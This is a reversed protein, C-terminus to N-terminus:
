LGFAVRIVDTDGASITDLAHGFPAGDTADKNIVGNDLYLLDGVAVASNGSHDEATVSVRQIHFGPVTCTAYDASDRDTQLYVVMHNGLKQVDGSVGGATVPLYVNLPAYQEIAGANKVM